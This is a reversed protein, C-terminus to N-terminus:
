GVSDAEGLRLQAGDCDTAGAETGCVCRQLPDRRRGLVVPFPLRLVM